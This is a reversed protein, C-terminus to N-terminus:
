RWEASEFIPLLLFMICNRESTFLFRGLSLCNVGVLWLAPDLGLAAEQYRVGVSLVCKEEVKKIWGVGAPHVFLYIGTLEGALPVISVGSKNGKM